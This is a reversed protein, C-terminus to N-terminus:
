RQGSWSPIRRGLRDELAEIFPACSASLKRIVEVDHKGHEEVESTNLPSGLDTPTFNPEVGIWGYLEHLVKQDQLIEELVVVHLDDGFADMWPELHALYNSRELYTYPNVSIDQTFPPAPLEDLFVERLTRPELGHEETFHYNSIARIVPHRLIAIAKAKPFFSLIRSAAQPVEIYSASKEGLVMGAPATSFYKQLYRERADEGQPEHLFFKPEPRVPRAMHINPHSDLMHHLWTSGSRQAGIICVFEPDPHLEPM